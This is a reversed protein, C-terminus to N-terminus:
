YLRWTLNGPSGTSGHFPTASSNGYGLDAVTGQSFENHPVVGSANPSRYKKYLASAYKPFGSLFQRNQRNDLKRAFKFSEMLTERTTKLGYVLEPPIEQTNLAGRSIWIFTLAASFMCVIAVITTTQPRVGVKALLGNLRDTTWQLPAFANRGLAMPGIRFADGREEQGKNYESTCGEIAFKVCLLATDTDMYMQLLHVVAVFMADHPITKTSGRDPLFSGHYIVQSIHGVLLSLLYQFLSDMDEAHTERPVGRTNQRTSFVDRYLLTTTILEIDQEIQQYLVDPATKVMLAIYRSIMTRLDAITINGNDRNAMASMVLDATDKENARLQNTVANFVEATEVNGPRRRKVSYIDADSSDDYRERKLNSM